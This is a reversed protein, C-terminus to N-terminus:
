SARQSWALKLSGRLASRGVFRRGCAESRASCGTLALFPVPRVAPRGAALGADETPLEILAAATESFDTPPWHNYNEDTSGALVPMERTTLRFAPQPEGKCAPETPPLAPHFYSLGPHFAAVWVAGKGREVKAVAPTGDGFTAVPAVGDGQPISLVSKEGFVGCTGGDADGSAHAFFVSDLRPAFALDQKSLQGHTGLM